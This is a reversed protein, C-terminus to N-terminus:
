IGKNCALGQNREARWSGRQVLRGKVARLIRSGRSFLKIMNLIIYM